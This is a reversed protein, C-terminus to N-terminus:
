RERKIKEVRKWVGLYYQSILLLKMKVAIVMECLCYHDLQVSLMNAYTSKNVGATKIRM